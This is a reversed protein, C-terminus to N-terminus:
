HTLRSHTLRSLSYSSYSITLNRGTWAYRIVICHESKLIITWNLINAPPSLTTTDATTSM